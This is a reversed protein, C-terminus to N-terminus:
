ACSCPLSPRRSVRSSPQGEGELSGALDTTRGQEPFEDDGDDIYWDEREGPNFPLHEVRHGEGDHGRQEARHDEGHREHRRRHCDEDGALDGRM